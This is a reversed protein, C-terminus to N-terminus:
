AKLAAGVERYLPMMQVSDSLNHQEIMYLFDAEALNWDNAAVDVCLAQYCILYQEPSEFLGFTDQNEIRRTAEKMVRDLITSAMNKDDKVKTAKYPHYLNIDLFNRIYTASIHESSGIYAEM